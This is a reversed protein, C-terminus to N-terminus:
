THHIVGEKPGASTAVPGSVSAATPAAAAPAAAPATAHQAELTSALGTGGSTPAASETHPAATETYAPAPQSAPHPAAPGAAGAAKENHAAPAAAAATGATESAPLTGFKEGEATNATVPSSPLSLPPVENTVQGATGRIIEWWKFADDITHAKFNYDHTMSVAGGIKGKSADKGKVTFKEGDIAGVACDPLYLSLDPTPDKALDDDTSFEHLFKSPTVVYYKTDYKRM